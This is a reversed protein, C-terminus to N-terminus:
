ACSTSSDSRRPSVGSSSPTVSSSQASEIAETVLRQLAATVDAQELLTAARDEPLVARAMTAHGGGNGGGRALVRAAAGAGEAHGSYRLTIVVGDDLKAGVAVWTVNEIGLCFDALDAMVHASGDDLEGLWTVCLGAEISADVLGRGFTRSMDVPYSPHEFRRVMGLDARQQLFAYAEVDAPTVGRMLSDTDTKIGFLLATALGRSLREGSTARIYETLMTATAGYHPRIDRFETVYGAECPHHDIVALRPRGDVQLDRPQTDVAIVREFQRLEDLTVTTVRIHLLEAMRRNEPRTMEDLTVIPTREPSNGLLSAVALASSVADPDPEPHILIPVVDDGEAFSRLCFARREAELRELEEGLDLRLVDRLEGSRALTGDHPGDMDAAEQSLVLVAADPRVSRLAELARRAREVPRLDVVATVSPAPRTWGYCSADEPDGGFFDGEAGTSTEASWRRVDRHRSRVEAHMRADDSIIVLLPRPGNSGTSETM